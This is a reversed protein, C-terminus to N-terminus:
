QLEFSKGLTDLLNFYYNRIEDKHMFDKPEFNENIWKNWYLQIGFRDMDNIFDNITLPHPLVFKKPYHHKIIYEEAYVELIINNDNTYKFWTAMDKCRWGDFLIQINDSCLLDFQFPKTLFERFKESGITQIFPITKIM